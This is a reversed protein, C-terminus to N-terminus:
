GAAGRHRPDEAREEPAEGPSAPSQKAQTPSTTAMAESAEPRWLLALEIRGKHKYAADRQTEEASRTVPKMLVPEGEEALKAQGAETLMVAERKELKKAAPAPSASMSEATGISKQPVTMIEKQMVPARVVFFVLVALAGATALELPIKIRLPVFLTRLLKRFRFGPTMRAHLTEMFDDPAKVTESAAIENILSQLSALEERCAKCSTLHDEVLHQQERDLADDIYESLREKIEKCEM